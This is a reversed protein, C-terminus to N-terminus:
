SGARPRSTRPVARQPRHTWAEGLPAAISKVRSSQTVGVEVVSPGQFRLFFVLWGPFLSGVMM